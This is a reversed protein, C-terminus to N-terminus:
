EYIEITGRIMGMWCSYPVTGSNEPLFQVLNEGEHLKIDIGYAPVLIEGNCGTLKGEPVYITWEVPTGKQVSFEPYSGYDIETWVKQVDEQLISQNSAKHVPNPLLVGTLSLGNSVMNIGMLFVLVASVSLMYKRYKMNLRGFLFGFGFMLPVTGLCFLFM